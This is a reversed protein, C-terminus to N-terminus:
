KAYVPLHTHYSIIMPIKLWKSVFISMWIFLSPSTCHILDPRYLKMVNYVMRDKLDTSLIMEPYPAFREGESYFIPYNHIQTPADPVVDTTVIQVNDKAKSLYKLMEKFRNQYGCVHTFPTPEVVLGVRRPPTKDIAPIEPDAVYPIPAPRKTTVLYDCIEYFPIYPM